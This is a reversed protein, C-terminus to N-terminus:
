KSKIVFITVPGAKRVSDFIDRVDMVPGTTGRCQLPTKTVVIKGVQSRSNGKASASDYKSYM